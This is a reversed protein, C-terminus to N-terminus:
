EYVEQIYNEILNEKELYHIKTLIEDISIPYFNHVDVGVNFIITNKHKKILWNNHIHGVLNIDYDDKFDSPKHTCWIKKKNYEVEVGKFITKLSNQTDHNGIIYIINGNLKDNYYRFNKHAKAFCFDGLFIVIDEEKVKENWKKIILDNMEEVNLFPRNCYKIINEHGFHTDSTFFYKM